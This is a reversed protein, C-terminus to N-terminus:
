IRAVNGESNRHSFLIGGVINKPVNEKNNFSFIYHGRM